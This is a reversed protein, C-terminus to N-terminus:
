GYKKATFVFPSTLELGDIGPGASRLRELRYWRRMRVGLRLGSQREDRRALIQRGGSTKVV